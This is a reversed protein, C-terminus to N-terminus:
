RLYSRIADIMEEGGVRREAESVADLVHAQLHAEMVQATLGNMAGRASALQRLVEACDAEQELAREVGEMQGRIRRVRAILQQKNRVTHSM